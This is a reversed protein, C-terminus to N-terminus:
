TPRAVGLSGAWVNRPFNTISCSAEFTEVQPYSLVAYLRPGQLM